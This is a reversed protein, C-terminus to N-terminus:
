NNLKLRKLLVMNNDLCCIEWGKDGLDNIQKIFPNNSVIDVWKYEWRNFTEM